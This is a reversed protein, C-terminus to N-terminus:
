WFLKRYVALSCKIILASFPSYLNRLLQKSLVHMNYIFLPCLYLLHISYRSNKEFDVEGLAGFCYVIIIFFSTLALTLNLPWFARSGVGHISLALFYFLLGVLPKLSENTTTYEVLPILNWSGWAIYQMSECCGILYGPYFGLTIRAIAWAGGSFPLASATEAICCM